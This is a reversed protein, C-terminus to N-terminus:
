IQPKPPKCTNANRVRGIETYKKQQKWTARPIDFYFRSRCKPKPARTEQQCWPFWLRTVSLTPHSPRPGAASGKDERGGQRRVGFARIFSYDWALPGEEGAGETCQARGAVGQRGGLQFRHGLKLRHAQGVRGRTVSFKLLARREQERELECRHIGQKQTGNQTM